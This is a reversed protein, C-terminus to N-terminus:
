VGHHHYACTAGSRRRQRPLRSPSHKASRIPRELWLSGDADIDNEMDSMSIGSWFSASAAIALHAAFLPYASAMKTRYQHLNNPKGTGAGAQASAGAVSANRKAFFPRESPLYRPPREPAQRVAITLKQRIPPAGVCIVAGTDASWLSASLQAVGHNLHIRSRM